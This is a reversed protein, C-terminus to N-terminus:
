NEVFSQVLSFSFNVESIDQHLTKNLPINKFSLAVTCFSYLCNHQCVTQCTFCLDMGISIYSLYRNRVSSILMILLFLKYKVTNNLFPLIHQQQHRKYANLWKVDQQLLIQFCFDTSLYIFYDVWYVLAQDDWWNEGMCQTTQDSWFALPVITCSYNM